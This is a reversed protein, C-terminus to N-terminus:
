KGMYANLEEETMTDIDADSPIGKSEIAAFQAEARDLGQIAGARLPQGTKIANKFAEKNITMIHKLAKSKAKFVEKSDNITPVIVKLRAVEGEAAATGSLEHITDALAKGSIAKLRTFKEPSAGFYEGFSQIRSSVPGVDVEKLLDDMAKISADVSNMNTLSKVQASDLQGAKIRDRTNKEDNLLFQKQRRNNDIVDLKMKQDRRKLQEIQYPTLGGEGKSKAVALQHKRFSDGMSQGQQTGALAGAGGEFIAGIAGGILAPAFFSLAEQFQSAVQPKNKITNDNTPADLAEDSAAAVSAEEVRDINKALKVEKDAEKQAKEVKKDRKPIAGAKTPKIKSDVLQGKELVTADALKGKQSAIDKDFGQKAHSLNIEERLGVAKDKLTLANMISSAASKVTDEGVFKIDKGTRKKKKKEEENPDFAAM